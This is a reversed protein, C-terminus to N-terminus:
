SRFDINTSPQGAAFGSCLIFNHHRVIMEASMHDKNVTTHADSALIVDYGLSYARRCTTDVCFDSCMGAIVVRRVGMADLQSQLVTDQFADCDHKEVVMDADLYGTAPHIKWGECPKELCHGSGGDHQVFIIHVDDARARAVLEGIRKLVGDADHVADSDALLGNQVDIIILATNSM